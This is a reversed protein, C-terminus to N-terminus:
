TVSTGIIARSVTFSFETRNRQPIHRSFLPLAVFNRTLCLPDPECGTHSVRDPTCAQPLGGSGQSVPWFMDPIAGNTAFSNTVSSRCCSDWNRAFWCGLSLRSRSQPAVCSKLFLVTFTADSQIGEHAIALEYNRRTIGDAAYWLNEFKMKTEGEYEM